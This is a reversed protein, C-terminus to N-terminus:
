GESEMISLQKDSYFGVQLAVCATVKCDAAWGYPQTLGNTTIVNGLM